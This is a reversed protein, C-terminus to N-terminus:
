RTTSSGSIAIRTIPFASNYSRADRRCGTAFNYTASNRSTAIPRCTCAAANGASNDGSTACTAFRPKPCERGAVAGFPEVFLRSCFRETTRVADSQMGGYAAVDGPWKAEM